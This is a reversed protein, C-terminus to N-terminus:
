DRPWVPSRSIVTALGKRKPLQVVRSKQPQSTVKIVGTPRAGIDQEKRKFAAQRRMDKEMQENKKLKMKEGMEIARKKRRLITNEVAQAQQLEEELWKRRRRAKTLEANTAELENESTLKTLTAEQQAFSEERLERRVTIEKALRENSAELAGAGYNRSSTGILCTAPRFVTNSMDAPALNKILHSAMGKYAM